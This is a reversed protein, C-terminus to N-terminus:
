QRQKAGQVRCDCTKARPPQFLRLLPLSSALHQQKPQALGHTALRNTVLVRDLWAPLCGAVGLWGALWCPGALWGTTSGFVTWGAQKGAQWSAQWGAQWDALRAPLWGALWGALWGFGALGGKVTM